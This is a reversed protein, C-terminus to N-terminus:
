KKLIDLTERDIEVPELGFKDKKEKEDREEELRKLYARQDEFMGDFRRMILIVILGAALSMLGTGNLGFNLSLMALFDLGLVAETATIGFNMLAWGVIVFLASFTWKKAITKKGVLATAVLLLMLFANGVAYSCYSQWDYTHYLLSLLVGDGVAFFVSPWGWRMMVLLTIPLTLTFVFSADAAFVKQAFFVILDFAVLIVAILFLDTFRYQKISISRLGNKRM